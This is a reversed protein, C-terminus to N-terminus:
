RQQGPPLSCSLLALSEQTWRLGCKARTHLGTSLIPYPPPPPLTHPFYRSDSGGGSYHDYSDALGLRQVLGLLYM